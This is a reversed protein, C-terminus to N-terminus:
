NSLLFHRCVCVCICVCLCLSACCVHRVVVRACLWVVCYIYVYCGRVLYPVATHRALTEYFLWQRNDLDLVHRFRQLFAFDGFLRQRHVRCFQNLM